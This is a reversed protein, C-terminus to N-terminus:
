DRSQTGQPCPHASTPANLGRCLVLNHDRCISCPSDFVPFPQCPKPVVLHSGSPSFHWDQPVVGMSHCCPSFSCLKGPLLICGAHSHDTGMLMVGNEHVDGWCLEMETLMVTNGSQRGIGM